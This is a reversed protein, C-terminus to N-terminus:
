RSKVSLDIWHLFGEECGVACGSDVPRVVVDALRHPQPQKAGLDLQAFGFLAGEVQEQLVQDLARAVEREALFRDRGSKGVRHLGAVQREAGVPPMRVRERATHRNFLHQAFQHLAVVPQHAALAPGRVERGRLMPHHTGIRDDARVQGEGAPRRKAGLVLALVVDGYTEEAVAGCIDPGEVLRQVKSGDPLQRDDKHALVIEVHLIRRNAFHRRDLM